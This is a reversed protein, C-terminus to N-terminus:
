LYFSTPFHQAQYLYVDELSEKQSISSISSQSSRKAPSLGHAYGISECSISSSMSSYGTHSEYPAGDIMNNDFILDPEAILLDVETSHHEPIFEWQQTQTTNEPQPFLVVKYKKDTAHVEPPCVDLVWDSNCVSYIAMANSYHKTPGKFLPHETATTSQTNSAPRVAWLQNESIEYPKQYYM